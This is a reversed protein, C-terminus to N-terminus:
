FNLAWVPVWVIRLLFPILPPPKFIHGQQVTGSISGQLNTEKFLEWNETAKVIANERSQKHRKGSVSQINISKDGIILKGQSPCISVPPYYEYLHEYKVEWLM